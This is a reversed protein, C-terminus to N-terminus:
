TESPFKFALRNKLSRRPCNFNGNLFFRAYMHYFFGRGKINFFLHSIKLGREGALDWSGKGMQTGEWINSEADLHSMRKVHEELYWSELHSLGNELDAM